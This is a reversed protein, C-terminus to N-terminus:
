HSDPCIEDAQVLAASLMNQLQNGKCNDAHVIPGNQDGPPQAQCFECCYDAGDRRPHWHCRLEDITEYIELAQERTLHVM